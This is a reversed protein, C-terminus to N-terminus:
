HFILHWVFKITRFNRVHTKEELIYTFIIFNTIELSTKRRVLLGLSVKLSMIMYSIKHPINPTDQLEGRPTMNIPIYVFVTKQPSFSAVSSFSM